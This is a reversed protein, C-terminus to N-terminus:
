LWRLMFLTRTELNPVFIIGQRIDVTGGHEEVWLVIRYTQEDLWDRDAVGITPADLDDCWVVKSEM